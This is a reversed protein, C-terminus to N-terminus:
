PLLPGGFKLRNWGRLHPTKVTAHPRPAGASPRPNPHRPLQSGTGQPPHPNPARPPLPHARLPRPPSHLPAPAPHTARPRAPYSRTRQTRALALGPVRPSAFRPAPVRCDNTALKSQSRSPPFSEHSGSGSLPRWPRLGAKMRRRTRLPQLARRGCPCQMFAARAPDRSTHGRRCQAAEAARATPVRSLHGSRVEQGGARGTKPGPHASEPTQSAVPAPLRM